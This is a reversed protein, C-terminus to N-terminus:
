QWLDAELMQEVAAELDKRAFDELASLAERVEQAKSEDEELLVEDLSLYEHAAYLWNQSAEMKSVYDGTGSSGLCPRPIWYVSYIVNLAQRRLDPKTQVRFKM